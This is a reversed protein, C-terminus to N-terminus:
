GLVRKGPECRHDVLPGLGERYYRSLDMCSDDLLRFDSPAREAIKTLESGLAARVGHFQAAIFEGLVPSMTSLIMLVSATEIVHCHEAIHRSVDEMSGRVLLEGDRTLEIEGTKPDEKARLM